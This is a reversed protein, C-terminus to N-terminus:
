RREVVLAVVGAPRRLAIAISTGEVGRIKAVAGDIGLQTVAIGDVAVIRDGVVIGAAEAGSGPVVMDVRLTDGDAVLKTGIGVLELKPTEGEALRALAIRLPGLTGGDTSTLGAEIRPNFSDAGITISFPGPPIGALEFAGDPRTVTGANAPQASAGGDGGERMVRAYPVPAGDAASVITGRLTGGASVAIAIAPAPATASM